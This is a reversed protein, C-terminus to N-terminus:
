SIMFFLKIDIWFIIDLLKPERVELKYKKKIFFLCKLKLRILAYIKNFYMKFNFETRIKM